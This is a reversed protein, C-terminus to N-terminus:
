RKLPFPSCFSLKLVFAASGSARGFQLTNPISKEWSEVFSANHWTSSWCLRRREQVEVSAIRASSGWVPLSYVMRWESSKLHSNWLAISDHRHVAQTRTPSLLLADARSKRSLARDCTQNPWCALSSAEEKSCKVAPHAGKSKCGQGALENQGAIM